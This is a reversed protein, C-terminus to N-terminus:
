TAARCLAACCLVGCQCAHMCSEHEEPLGMRSVAILKDFTTCTGPCGCQMCQDHKELLGMRHVARKCTLPQVHGQYDVSCLNCMGSLSWVGDSDYHHDCVTPAQEGRRCLLCHWQHPAVTEAHLVGGGWGVACSIAIFREGRSCPCSLISRVKQAMSGAMCRTSSGTAGAAGSGRLHQPDAATPALV